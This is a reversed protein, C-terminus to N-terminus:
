DPTTAEPVHLSNRHPYVLALLKALPIPRSLAFGQIYRCGFQRLYLLQADSEVGEAIVRLQMHHGLALIARVIAGDDRDQPLGSVFSRDIKLSSVPLNKMRSLSSHGTGFDDMSIKFGLQRLAGMVPIVKDPQRMVMSETLELCIHRPEVGSGQIVALLESPLNANVFELAAMNVNVVLNPFGSRHLVALDGCAQKVVWRGIQVILRSQEAVPIFVDPRVLVGDPRRWRLLAEVAVLTESEVDFIPQYELFFENGLLARHLGAEMSLQEALATQQSDLTEGPTALFFSLANRGGQKSRYMASDASRMLESGTRGSDPFVSIGVSASLTLEQGAYLFPTRAALLIREGLAQLDPWHERQTLLIAFEDGGLRGVHFHDEGLDMLRQSFERLVLNGAEHGFADNIPKFRDLDIYLVAFKQGFAGAEMCASDLLQQFHKRNILGTLDDIQALRRILNQQELREVTQSILSGITFSLEPLQAERQRAQRSYFELVGHSKRRGDMTVYSVPFAYGSKLGCQHAVLGGLFVADHLVDEVWEAQMSSWVCGILGEGPALSMTQGDAIFAEVGSGPKYWYHKSSLRQQGMQGREPSWYAGCEWGLNECVLQIVRTIAEDLTHTGILLQTSEFCFRERMEAVRSATMDVLMGTLPAPAAGTAPLVMLRIWRLGVLADITRFEYEVPLTHVTAGAARALTAHFAPLDDAVIEGFCTQLSTHWGAPVDLLRAAGQSLVWHGSQPVYWWRGFGAANEVPDPLLAQEAIDGLLLPLDLGTAAKRSDSLLSPKGM